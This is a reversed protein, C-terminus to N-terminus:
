YEITILGAAGRAAEFTEAVVLAVPEDYYRIRDTSLVPRPRTFVERVTPTVAPGFVPQPPANRYTMVHIVGPAAEAQATNIATIRGRAIGAGLIYGFAVPDDAVHEYAYVAGGTVKLAGDVRDVPQGIHPQGTGAFTTTSNPM